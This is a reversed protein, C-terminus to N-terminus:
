AEQYSFFVVYCSQLRGSFYIFVLVELVIHNSKACHFLLRCAPTFCRCNYSVRSPVLATNVNKIAEDFNEEDEPVMEENRRIGLVYVVIDHYNGM